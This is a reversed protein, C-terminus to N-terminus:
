TPIPTPITPIHLAEPPITSPPMSPPPSPPTIAAVAKLIEAPDDSPHAVLSALEAPIEPERCTYKCGEQVECNALNTADSLREGMEAQLWFTYHGATLCAPPRGCYSAATLTPDTIGSCILTGDNTLRFQQLTGPPDNSSRYTVLFSEIKPADAPMEWALVLEDAVCTGVSGLLVWGILCHFIRKYRM